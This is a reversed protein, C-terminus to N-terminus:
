SWAPYIGFLDPCSLPRFASYSLLLCWSGKMAVVRRALSAERCSWDRHKPSPLCKNMRVGVAMWGKNGLFRLPLLEPFWILSGSRRGIARVQEPSGSAKGLIGRAATLRCWSCYLLTYPLSFDQLPQTRLSTVENIRQQISVFVCSISFSAVKQLNCEDWHLM